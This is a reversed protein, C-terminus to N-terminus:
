FQFFCVFDCVVSLLISFCISVTLVSDGHTLLVLEKSSLSEFLTSATNLTVEFQGDERVKEKGVTGGLQQVITQFGYCIGLLPIGSTFVSTDCQLSSVDNVSGGSGNIVIGRNISYFIMAM